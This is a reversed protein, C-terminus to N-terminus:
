RDQSRTWKLRRLQCSVINNMKVKSFGVSLYINPRVTVRVSGEWSRGHMRSELDEHEASVKSRIRCRTTHPMSIEPIGAAGLLRPLDLAWARITECEDKSDSSFGTM